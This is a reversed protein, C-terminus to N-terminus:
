CITLGNNEFELDIEVKKANQEAPLPLYSPVDVTYMFLYVLYLQIM